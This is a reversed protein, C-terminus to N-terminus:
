EVQWVQAAVVDASGMCAPTQAGRLQLWACLEAAQHLLLVHTCNGQTYAAVSAAYVAGSQSSM